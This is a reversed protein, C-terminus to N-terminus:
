FYYEMSLIINRDIPSISTPVEFELTEPNAKLYDQKYSKNFLNEGKLSIIFDKSYHYKIGMNYLYYYKDKDNTYTFILENFIDYKNITNINRILYKFKKYTDIIPAKYELYESSMVLKDIEHYIKEWSLYYDYCYIKSTANYLLYRDNLDPILYNKFVSYTFLFNLKNSDKKFIINEQFSNNKIVKVKDDKIFFGTSNVLYPDISFETHAYITRFIFYNNTYTHAIRYNFLDDEQLSSNNIVKAKMLGLNVISNNELAYQNELFVSFVTQNTNGTSPLEVGNRYLEDYRFWKYRYKIGTILTNTDTIHKYKLEINFLKADITSIQSAIPYLYDYEEKPEVDDTFYTDTLKYDFDSLIYFNDYNGDYGLHIFKSKIWSNTPTNDISTDLFADRNQSIAQFLFHNHENYISALAHFTPHDRSVEVNDVYHKERKNQNYSFYDFYNWGNLLQNASYLSIGKSNYMNYSAKIKSGNDKQATKTYLKILILTSETTYEYSPNQFYVEIHDVFDLNIDGLLMFGSGYMGTAIEQNNIFVRLSNSVFAKNDGYTFPDPLGYSSEKYEIMPLSEIIDKLTNVQMRELDSRTFIFSVGGNAIKTKESLDCNIEIKKLLNDINEGWLFAVLLLYFLFRV